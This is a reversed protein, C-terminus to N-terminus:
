ISSDRPPKQLIPLEGYSDRQIVIYSCNNFGTRRAEGHGMNKELRVIKYQIGTGDLKKDYKNLVAEIEDPIPGDVTIVIETPPCTQDIVSNIAEDFHKPNDKGYVCMSVSFDLRNM